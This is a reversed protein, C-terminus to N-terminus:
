RFYDEFSASDDKSITRKQPKSKIEEQEESEEVMNNRKQDLIPNIMKSFSDQTARVEESIGKISEGYEGMKRIIASQLEQIITEIRTVREDLAKTKYELEIKTKNLNEINQSLVRLTEEIEQKAIERVTEVDLGQSYYTEQGYAQQSYTQDQPYSEQQYNQQEQSYAQYQANTNNYSGQPIPPIQAQQDSNSNISPLEQNNPMISQQMEPESNQQNPYIASKIKEQSFADNIDTLSNGEQKLTTVIQSDSLGQQKLSSIRELLAM